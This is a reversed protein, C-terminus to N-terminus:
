QMDCKQIFFRLQFKYQKSFTYLKPWYIIEMERTCRGEGECIVLSSRSTPVQVREVYGIKSSAKMRAIKEKMSLKQFCSDKGKDDVEAFHRFAATERLELDRQEDLANKVATLDYVKYSIKETKLRYPLGRHTLFRVCHPSVM